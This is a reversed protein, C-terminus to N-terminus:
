NFDAYVSNEKVELACITWINDKVDAIATDFRSHPMKQCCEVRLKRIRLKSIDPFSRKVSKEILEKNDRASNKVLLIRADDIIIFGFPLGSM